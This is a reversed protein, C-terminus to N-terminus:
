EIEVPGSYIPTIQINVTDEFNKVNYVLSPANFFFDVDVNSLPSIMIVSQPTKLFGPTQVTVQLDSSVCHNRIQIKRILQDNTKGIDFVPLMDTLHGTMSYLQNTNTAYKKSSQTPSTRTPIPITSVPPLPINPVPGQPQTFLHIIQTDAGDPTILLLYIKNDTLSKLKVSVPVTGAIPQNPGSFLTDITYQVSNQEDLTLANTPVHIYFSSGLNISEFIARITPTSNTLDNVIPM